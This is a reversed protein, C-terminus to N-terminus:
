YLPSLRGVALPGVFVQGDRIDIRPLPTLGADSPNGNAPRGGGLISLGGLILSSRGGLGFRGLLGDLGAISADIYGQPRHQEDVSFRGQAQMRQPGKAASLEEIELRGGAARWRELEVSPAKATFPAAETIAGQFVINARDQTGVLADLAPIRAERLTFAIDYAHEEPPREPDIRLHSQWSGARLLEIGDPHESTGDGMHATPGEVVVSFRDLRNGTFIASADFSQWNLTLREGGDQPDAVLPGTAEVIVHNPKYVQAVAVFQAVSGTVAGAPTTGVFLLNTCRVEFRFPFGGISRDPCSWKRQQEAEQALWITIADHVRARAVFWFASWGALLVVLFAVPLFLGLRSRRRATGRSPTGDNANQPAPPPSPPQSVTVTESRYRNFSRSGPVKPAFAPM